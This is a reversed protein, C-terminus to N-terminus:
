KITCSYGQDELAKKTDDPSAMKELETKAIKDVDLVSNVVLQKKSNIDQKCDTFANSYESMSSKVASCFDEKKVADIQADTYSSLDMNYSFDMTELTNGKFGVNFTIDVGSQEQTCVLKTEKNGCGTVLVAVLAIVVVGMLSKKM